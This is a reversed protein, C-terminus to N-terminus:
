GILYVPTKTSPLVKAVAMHKAIDAILAQTYGEEGRQGALATAKKVIANMSVVFVDDLSVVEDARLDIVLADEAHGHFAGDGGQLEELGAPENKSVSEVYTQGTWNNAELWAATKAAQARVAEGLEVQYETGTLDRVAPIGMVAETARLPAEDNGILQNHVIAGNAGGCGETHASRKKGSAAAVFDDIIDVTEGLSAGNPVTDLVSASANMAIEVNSASGSVHRERVQAQSGDANHNTHRGDICSDHEFDEIPKSSALLREGFLELDSETAEALTSPIGDPNGLGLDELRGIYAVKVTERKEPTTAM